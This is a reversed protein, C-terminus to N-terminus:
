APRRRDDTVTRECCPGARGAAPPPRRPWRWFRCCCFVCRYPRLLLLAPLWGLGRVRSRTATAGTCQPCRVQFVPREKRFRKPPRGAGPLRVPIRATPTPPRSPPGAGGVQRSDGSEVPGRTRAALVAKVLGTASLPKTLYDTAGRRIAEAADPISGHGTMLVVPPGTGGGTVRDLVAFGDQDPLQVDLLLLDIAGGRAGLLRLGAAGDAAQVVEMGERVLVTTVFDRVAPEDDVVLILPSQPERTM